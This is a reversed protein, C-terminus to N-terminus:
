KRMTAQRLKEEKRELYVTANTYLLDYFDKDSYGSISICYTRHEQVAVTSRIGNELLYIQVQNLLPISASTVKTRNRKNRACGDADFLGRLIHPTFPIKLQVTLSKKPTIGQKILWAHTEKHGFLVVGMTSGAENISIHMTKLGLWNQYKALHNIDKSNISINYKKSSLCGDGIIYGFWYQAVEDWKKFPNSTIFRNLGGSGQFNLKIKNRWSYITKYDIGTKEAIEKPTFGEASLRIVETRNIM